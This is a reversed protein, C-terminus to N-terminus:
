FMNLANPLESSINRGGYGLTLEFRRRQTQGVKRLPALSFGGNYCSKDPGQLKIDRGVASGKCGETLPNPAEM